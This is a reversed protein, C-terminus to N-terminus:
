QMLQAYFSWYFKGGRLEPAHCQCIGALAILREGNFVLPVYPRWWIPIGQAQYLRKLEGTQGSGRQCRIGTVGFRIQVIQSEIREAPLWELEGLGHPLELTSRVAGISWAIPAANPAPPPPLPSLAFLDNRYRRVICGSWKVLPNADARATLVENQIRQLYRTQPAIFGGRKLWLRLVAHQLTLELQLLQAINLTGRRSGGLQILTQAALQEVLQAAEGCHHASRSLTTNAAPWRQLLQPIIHHRLYNRDFATCQNSSDEIWTLRQLKAYEILQAQPTSLLPRVLQGAGLTTVVPMAALGAIGSGRLLALLLTEAQDDQHHATLLCENANLVDIFARYRAERAVAEISEGIRPQLHLRRIVLPISLAACHTQCHAAWQASDPHLGHDLHIAHLAGPLHERVAAAANLLVTSDLGGSFAIWCRSTKKFPAFFTTLAIPHFTKM